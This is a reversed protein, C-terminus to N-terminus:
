ESRLAIVPDVRAARWAPVFGAVAATLLITGATVAGVLPDFPRVGYLLHGFSKTAVYALPDRGTHDALARRITMGYADDGLRMVALLLFHEFRGLHDGGM